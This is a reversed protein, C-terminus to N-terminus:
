RHRLLVIAYRNTRSFSIKLDQEFPLISKIEQFGIKGCKQFRFARKLFINRHLQLITGDIDVLVVIITYM